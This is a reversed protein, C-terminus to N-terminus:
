FLEETRTERLTYACTYTGTPGTGNKTIKVAVLTPGHQRKLRAAEEKADERTPICMCRRRTEITVTRSLRLLSQRWRPETESAYRGLMAPNTKIQFM